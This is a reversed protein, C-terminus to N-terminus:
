LITIAFRAEHNEESSAVIEECVEKATTTGVLSCAAHLVRFYSGPESERYYQSTHRSTRDNGRQLGNSLLEFAGVGTFSGPSQVKAQIVIGGVAVPRTANTVAMKDHGKSPLTMDTIKSTSALFLPMLYVAADYQGADANCDMMVPVQGLGADIIATDCRDDGSAIKVYAKVLFSCAIRTYGCTMAGCPDLSALETSAELIASYREVILHPQVHYFYFLIRGEVSM